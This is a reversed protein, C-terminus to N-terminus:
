LFAAYILRRFYSQFQHFYFYLIFINYNIYNGHLLGKKPNNREGIELLTIKFVRKKLSDSYCYCFLLKVM